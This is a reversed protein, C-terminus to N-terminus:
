PISSFRLFHVSLERDCMQPWAQKLRGLGRLATRLFVARAQNMRSDVRFLKSWSQYCVLSM